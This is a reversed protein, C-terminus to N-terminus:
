LAGTCTLFIKYNLSNNLNATGSHSVRMLDSRTVVCSQQGVM